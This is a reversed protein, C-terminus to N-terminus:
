KMVNQLSEQQLFKMDGLSSFLTNRMSKDEKVIEFQVSKM